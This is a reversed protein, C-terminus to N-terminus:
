IFISENKFSSRQGKAPNQFITSLDVIDDVAEDDTAVEEGDLNM